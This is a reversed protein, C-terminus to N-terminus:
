AVLGMKKLIATFRADSRLRDLKPDVRMTGMAGSRNEYARELWMFANDIKGLGAYILAVAYTLDGRLPIKEELKDLIKLAEETRGSVAYIHGYAAEARVPDNTLDGWIRNERLADEYMGKREYAIALLRHALAFHPDMELARRAQLIAQDFQHAYYHIIGKDRIMILSLPDLELAQNIEIFSEEFQDMPM